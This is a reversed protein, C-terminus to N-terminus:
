NSIRHAWFSLPGLDTSGALLSGTSGSNQFVRLTVADTTSAALYTVQVQQGINEGAAPIAQVGAIANGDNLSLDLLRAGSSNNPWKVQGGISWLGSSTLLIRSSNVAHLAGNDYTETDWNPATWTATAVPVNVSMTLQVAQLRPFTVTTSFTVAGVFTSGGNVQLTALSSPGGINVSGTSVTLGGTSITLAHQLGSLLGNEVATIEAEPDNFFAATITQGASKAAPAYPSTPYSAM